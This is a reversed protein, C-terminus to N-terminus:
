AATGCIEQAILHMATLFYISLTLVRVFTVFSDMQFYSDNMITTFCPTAFKKFTISIQFEPTRRSEAAM